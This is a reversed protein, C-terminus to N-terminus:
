NTTDQILPNPHSDRHVLVAYIVMQNSLTMKVEKNEGETSALRTLTISHPGLRLYCYGRAPSM